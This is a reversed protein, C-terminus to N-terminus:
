PARMILAFGVIFFCCRPAVRRDHALTGSSCPSRCVTDSRCAKPIFESGFPCMSRCNTLTLTDIACRGKEVVCDRCTRRIRLRCVYVRVVLRVCSVDPSGCFALALAGVEAITQRWDARKLLANKRLMAGMQRTALWAGSDAPSGGDRRSRPMASGLPKTGIRKRPTQYWYVATGPVAHYPLARTQNTRFALATSFSSSSLRLVACPAIYKYTGPIRIFTSTRPASRVGRSVGVVCVSSCQFARQRAQIETMLTTM